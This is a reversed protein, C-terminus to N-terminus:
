VSPELGTWVLYNNQAFRPIFQVYTKFRKFKWLIRWFWFSVNFTYPCSHSSYKWGNEYLVTMGNRVWFSRIEGLVQGLVPAGM